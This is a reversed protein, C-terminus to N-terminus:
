KQLKDFSYKRRFYYWLIFLRRGSAFQSYYLMVPGRDVQKYEPLWDLVRLWLEQIKLSVSDTDKNFRILLDRDTM